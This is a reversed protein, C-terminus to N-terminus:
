VKIGGERVGEAFAALRGHYLFRGRDLAAREVGAKQMRKALELGVAKACAKKDGSLKELDLTSCSAVTKGAQDDIVQAYFHKLSRFVSIRMQAGVSRLKSRVRRARRERAQNKKRRLSM